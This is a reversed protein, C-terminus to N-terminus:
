VPTFRLPLTEPGFIFLPPPRWTPVGDLELQPMAAVLLPLAEQLEARALNAGLCYHPGGGFSFVSEREVTIDFTLPEDFLGPDHNAAATSLGLITGAALHYGEFDLDEAVVRGAVSATPRFRLVEEVAQGALTHDDRLLKWQDPHRAFVWMGLGLQNRTTDYGAFLLSSVLSSIEIDTLRDDADEARILETILDARPDARRQEILGLVYAQMNAMGWEIEDGHAGLHLSLVWTTASIWRAFDDHDEEPVGLVQCMLQIPYHDAVASMFECRGAAAVPELLRQLTARMAPRHREMARPTFARSVLRRIRAHKEGELSLLSRDMAELLEGDAGLFRALDPLSSRLRRDALLAQVQPRGIALAGVPTRVLWSRRRMQAFVPGPDTQFQDDFTDLFPADDITKM